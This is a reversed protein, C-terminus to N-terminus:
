TRSFYYIIVAIVCLIVVGGMLIFDTKAMKLSEWFPQTQYSHRFRQLFEIIFALLITVLLGFVLSIGATAKRSLNSKEFPATAPEIIDIDFANETEKQLRRIEAKSYETALTEVLSELIRKERELQEIKIETDPSIIDLVKKKLDALEQEKQALQNKAKELRDSIIQLALESQKVKKSWESFKDIIANAVDAALQPEDATFSLKIIRGGGSGVKILDRLREVGKWIREQETKGKIHLLDILPATNHQKNSKFKTLLIPELIIRSKIASSYYQVMENVNRINRWQTGITGILTELEHQEGIAGRPVFSVSATYVPPILFSILIGIAITLGTGWFILRRWKILIVLYDLLNINEKNEM